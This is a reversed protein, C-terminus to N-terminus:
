KEWKLEKRIEQKLADIAPFRVEYCYQCQNPEPDGEADATAYTGYGDCSNPCMTQPILKHLTKDFDELLPELHSKSYTQSAIIEILYEKEAVIVRSSGGLVKAQKYGDRYAAWLAREIAAPIDLKALDKDPLPPTTM